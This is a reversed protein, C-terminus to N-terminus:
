FRFYIFPNYTGAALNLVCLALAAALAACRAGGRVARYRPARPALAGLQQPLALALGLALALLTSHSAFVQWPLTDVGAAPLTFMTRLFSAAHPVGDARFIVWGTVVALLTYGHALPRPLRELVAGLGHREAVLLAGHWLGWIVFTWAAGHWLGCLFFVVALNFTTRAPSRRNGGLPIYVYDRFWSSLSIHWRRWFDTLSRASYPRNFNPPFTFGLLHALGIAMNSYGSFDYLIQVSYAVAGLWASPWSLQAPALAFIADAPVAAANAILVKQALGVIFQQAGAAIRANSIVRQDIDAAIQRYRVIPGAILQPFMAKYMAFRWFSSQAAVDRRYVDILYSMGQFTFFSIGLPLVVHALQLQRGFPAALHNAIDAFFGLYKFYALLALNAGIGLWLVAKRRQRTRALAYGAGYNLVASAMLLPVFRPEGWAYFVLSGVLLVANKWPLLYYLCLFAPLFYFLFTISSFVM